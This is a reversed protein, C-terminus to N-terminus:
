TDEHLRYSLLELIITLIHLFSLYQKVTQKYSLINFCFDTDWYVFMNDVSIKYVQERNYKEVDTDRVLEGLALIAAM